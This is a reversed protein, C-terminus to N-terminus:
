EGGKIIQVEGTHHAPTHSLHTHTYPYQVRTGEEKKSETVRREELDAGRRARRRGRGAGPQARGGEKHDKNFKEKKELLPQGVGFVRILFWCGSAILPM